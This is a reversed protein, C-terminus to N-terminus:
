FQYNEIWEECRREIWEQAQKETKDKFIHDFFDDSYEISNKLSDLQEFSYQFIKLERKTLPSFFVTEQIRFQLKDVLKIAQIKTKIKKTM